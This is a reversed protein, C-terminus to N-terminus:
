YPETQACSFQAERSISRKGSVNVSPRGIYSVLLIRGACIELFFAEGTEAGRIEWSTMIHVQGDYFHPHSKIKEQWFASIKERNQMAFPWPADRLQVVVNNVPTVGFYPESAACM